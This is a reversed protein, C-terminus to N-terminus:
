KLIKKELLSSILVLSKEQIAAHNKAPYNEAVKEIILSLPKGKMKKLAFFIEVAVKTMVYYEENESTLIVKIQKFDEQNDDMVLCQDSISFTRDLLFVLEDTM